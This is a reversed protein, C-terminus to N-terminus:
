RDKRRAEVREAVSVEGLVPVVDRTLPIGHTAHGDVELVTRAEVEPRDVDRRLVFSATHTATHKCGQDLRELHVQGPAVKGKGGVGEGGGCVANVLREAKLGHFRAPVVVTLDGLLEPAHGVFLPSGDGRVDAELV